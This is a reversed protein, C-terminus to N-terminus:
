SPIALCHDHCRGRPRQYTHRQTLVGLQRGLNRSVVDCKPKKLTAMRWASACSPSGQMTKRAAGQWECTPTRVGNRLVCCRQGSTQSLMLTFMGYGRKHPYCYLHSQRVDPDFAKDYYERVFTVAVVVCDLHNGPVAIGQVNLMGSKMSIFSLRPRERAAIEKAEAGLKEAWNVVENSM